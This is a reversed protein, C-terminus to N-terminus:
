DEPEPKVEESAAEEGGEVKKKQGANSKRKKGSATTSGEEGNDNAKRKNTTPTAPADGNVAAMKIKLKRWQQFAAGKSSLSLKEAIADYDVQTLSINTSRVIFIPTGCVKFTSAEAIQELVAIM